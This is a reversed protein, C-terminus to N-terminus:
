DRTTIITTATDPFEWQIWFPSLDERKGGQKVGIKIKSPDFFPEKPTTREINYMRYRKQVTTLSQHLWAILTPCTGPTPGFVTVVTEGEPDYVITVGNLPMTIGDPRYANYVFVTQRIAERLNILEEPENPGVM